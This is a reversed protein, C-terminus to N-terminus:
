SLPALEVQGWVGLKEGVIVVAGLIEPITGAWELAAPIAAADPVRNGLATAAADAFAANAAIVCAADAKGFSLSHGVTGSSTCVGLPGWAPDIKLGVRGSLPSKGAVLAITAPQQVQIFIDGGNEVIVEPSLPALAQGVRAALAGAVAAMPGVGVKAAAALMERAVPPAFPDEPWPALAELFGPHATLYSEL